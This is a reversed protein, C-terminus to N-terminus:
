PRTRGRLETWTQAQWTIRKEIALQAELRDRERRLYADVAAKEAATWGDVKSSGTALQEVLAAVDIRSRAM